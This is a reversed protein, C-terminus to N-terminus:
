DTLHQVVVRGILRAEEDLVVMRDDHAVSVPDMVGSRTSRPAFGLLYAFGFPCMITAEPSSGVM